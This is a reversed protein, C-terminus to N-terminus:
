CKMHQLYQYDFLNREFLCELYNLVISYNCQQKQPCSTHVADKHTRIFVIHIKHLNYLMKIWACKSIHPKTADAAKNHARPLLTIKVAKPCIYVVVLSTQLAQKHVPKHDYIRRHIYVTILPWVIKVCIFLGWHFTIFWGIWIFLSGFDRCLSCHM